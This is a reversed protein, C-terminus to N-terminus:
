GRMEALLRKQESESLTLLADAYSIGKEKAIKEVKDELALEEPSRSTGIENLIGAGGLQKDVAEFVSILWTMTDEDVTKSIAYLKRGFEDYRVPLAVFERAKQIMAEEAAKEKALNAEREAKELRERLEAIQANYKEVLAKELKNMAESLDSNQPASNEVTNNMEGEGADREEKESKVTEVESTEAVVDSTAVAVVNEDVPKDERSVNEEKTRSQGFADALVKTLKEWYTPSDLEVIEIDDEKDITTSQNVIKGGSKRLFFDEGIAGAFVLGVTDVKIDTLDFIENMEKVM